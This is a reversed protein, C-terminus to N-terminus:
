KFLTPVCESFFIRWNIWGHGGPTSLFYHNINYRELFPILNNTVNVHLPDDVGCGIWVLKPNAAKLAAMKKDDTGQLFVAPGFLGIYGFVDPNDLVLTYTQGGGMSYGIVARNERNPLVRYNSELFPVIDKVLSSEFYGYGMNLPEPGILKPDPTFSYSEFSVAAQDPNGNPMVVIMPKAKGQAILNDMITNVKGMSTWTDEDNMGGHLLYLVPYKGSSTEYGPPTYVYMRRRFGLFPSDYWVKSLTGAPVDKILYLDTEKGPMLLVSEYGLWDRRMQYNNPDLITVGDVIFKYGYYEPKIPGITISWLGTDSKVMNENKKMATWEGTVAVENAKPAYLRFIIRNDTLIEPSKQLVPRQLGRVPIAKQDSSQIVVQAMMLSSFIFICLLGTLVVITKKNNM